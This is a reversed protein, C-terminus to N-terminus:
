GTRVKRYGWPCHLRHKLEYDNLIHADYIASHINLIHEQSCQRATAHSIIIERAARYGKPSHEPEDPGSPTRTAPNSGDNQEELCRPRLRRSRGLRARKRGAAERRGSAGERGGATREDDDDDDDDHPDRTGCGRRHCTVMHWQATMEVPHDAILSFNILLNFLM